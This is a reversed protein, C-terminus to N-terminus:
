LAGFSHTVNPVGLSAAIVPGALEAADCILIDPTWPRAIPLADELMRQARVAVFLRPFMFEPLEHAPIDRAEPFRRHFEAMGEAEDIGAEAADIGERRLRACSGAATLWLVDDGRAQLAKALPLMPHLHGVGPVSTLM